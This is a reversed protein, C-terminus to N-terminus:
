LLRADAARRASDFEIERRGGVHLRRHQDRDEESAASMGRPHAIRSEVTFADQFFRVDVGRKRAFLFVRTWCSSKRGM